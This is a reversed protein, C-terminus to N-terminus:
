AVLTSKGIGHGSAIARRIPMYPRKGKHTRVENGLDELFERQWVDPGPHDKLPGPEGWPWALMVFKYPNAWCEGAWEVLQEESTLPAAASAM